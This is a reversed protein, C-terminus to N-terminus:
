QRVGAILDLFFIADQQVGGRACVIQAVPPVADFQRGDFVLGGIVVVVVTGVAFFGGDRGCWGPDFDDFATVAARPYADDQV